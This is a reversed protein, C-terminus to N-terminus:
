FKYAVGLSLVSIGNGLEAFAAWSSNFYYRGGVFAQLRLDTDSNDGVYALNSSVSWFRLGLMLGGYVDWQSSQIGNFHYASRVGIITSSVDLDYLSNDFSYNKYALYGGLSIVGPGDVGWMGKEYQLHIAPSESGDGYDWGDSNGFGIGAGIVNSGVEFNGQGFASNILLLAIACAYIRKMNNTKKYRFAFFFMQAM